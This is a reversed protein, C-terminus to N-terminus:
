CSNTHLGHLAALERWRLAIAPLSDALEAYSCLRLQASFEVDMWAIGYAYATTDDSPIYV